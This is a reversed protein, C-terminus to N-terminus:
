LFPVTMSRSNSQILSLKASQLPPPHPNRFPMCFDLRFNCTKCLHRLIKRFTFKINSVVTEIMDLKSLIFLYRCVAVDIYSGYFHFISSSVHIDQFICNEVSFSRSLANGDDSWEALVMADNKIWLASFQSEHFHFSGSTDFLPLGSSPDDTINRFICDNCEIDHQGGWTSSTRVSPYGNSVNYDEIILNNFTWSFAGDFMYENDYDSHDLSACIPPFWQEFSTINSSFTVTIHANTMNLLCPHHTNNTYNTIINTNQGDMVIISVEQYSVVLNSAYYM